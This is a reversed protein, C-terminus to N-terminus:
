ARAGKPRKSHATRWVGPGEAVVQLVPQGALLSPRLWGGSFVVDEPLPAAPDRDVSVVRIGCRSLDEVSAGEGLARLGGYEIFRGCWGHKTLGVAAAAGIIGDNTGGLGLLADKAGAPVAAMAEAQSVRRGTTRLAYAVLTADVEEGPLVCLGPDSGPSANQVLFGAALERLAPLAGDPCDIVACASSNNSTYPIGELRPHQHRLVGRSSFEPSLTRLFTRVMRGTGMEAGLVDTDDFGLYVFM